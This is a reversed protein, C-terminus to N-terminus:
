SFARPLAARHVGAPYPGPPEVVVRSSPALRRYREADLRMIVDAYQIGDLRVSDQERHDHIFGCRAYCAVARANFELVRVTVAALGLDDFAHALVLRTVETGLGHGLVDPALLGIAYAASRSGIDFSHLSASGIFGRGADVVWSVRDAAPGLRALLGDAESPTLERWEDGAEEGFFRAIEPHVGIRRAAETNRAAPPRLTVVAPAAAAGGAGDEGTM